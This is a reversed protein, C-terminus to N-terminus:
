SHATYENDPSLKPCIVDNGLSQDSDIAIVYWQDLIALLFKKSDGASQAGSYTCCSSEISALDVSDPM